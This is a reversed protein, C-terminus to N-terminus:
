RFFFLRTVILVMKKVKPKEKTNITNPKVADTKPLNKKYLESIKLIIAPIIIINKEKCSIPM